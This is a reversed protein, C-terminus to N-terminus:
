YGIVPFWVVYWVVYNYMQPGQYKIVFPQIIEKVISTSAGVSIRHYTAIYNHINLMGKETFHVLFSIHM